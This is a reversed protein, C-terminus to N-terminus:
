TQREERSERLALRMAVCKKTRRLSLPKERLNIGGMGTKILSDDVNHNDEGM